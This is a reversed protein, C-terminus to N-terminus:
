FKAGHHAVLHERLATEADSLRAYMTAAADQSTPPVNVDGNVIVFEFIGACAASEAERLAEAVRDPLVAGFEGQIVSIKESHQDLDIAIDDCVEDWDPVPQPPRYRPIISHRFTNIAQLARLLERGIEENIAAVPTAAGPLVFQPFHHSLEAPDRALDDVIDEWFLM